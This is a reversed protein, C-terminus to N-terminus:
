FNLTDSGRLIRGDATHFVVQVVGRTESPRRDFDAFSVRGIPFLVVERRTRGSGRRVKVFGSRHVALVLLDLPERREFSRGALPSWTSRLQYVTVQATGDATTMDGRSDLLTFSVSITDAADKYAHVEGIRAAPRENLRGCSSALAAAVVALVAV